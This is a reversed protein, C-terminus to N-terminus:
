SNKVWTRKSLAKSILGEIDLEWWKEHLSAARQNAHHNNHWAFGFSLYGLVINNQSSDKTKHNRYSFPIPMHSLSSVANVRIHEILVPIVFLSVLWHIGLLSLLIVTFWVIIEFYKSLFMLVPDKALRLFCYNKVHIKRLNEKRMRYWLFSEWFGYKVPSSPDADTDSVRHHQQHIATWFSVPCYAALTGLLALTYEVPKWTEFSRHSFLRHFGVGIGVPGILFWAIFVAWWNVTVTGFFVMLLASVTLIQLPLWFRWFYWNM